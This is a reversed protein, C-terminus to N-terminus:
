DTMTVAAYLIMLKTDGTMVAHRTRLNHGGIHPTAPFINFSSDRVASM